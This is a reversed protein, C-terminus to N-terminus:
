FAKALMRVARYWGPSMGECHLEAEQGPPVQHIQVKVGRGLLLAGNHEYCLGRAILGSIIEPRSVRVKSLESICNFGESVLQMVEQYYAPLTVAQGNQTITCARIPMSSVPLSLM